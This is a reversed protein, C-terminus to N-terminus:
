YVFRRTRTENKVLVAAVDLFNLIVNKRCEDRQPSPLYISRFYDILLSKYIARTIIKVVLASRLKMVVDSSFPFAM